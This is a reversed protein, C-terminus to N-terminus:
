VSQAIGVRTKITCSRFIDTATENGSLRKIWLVIVKCSWPSLYHFMASRIYTHTHTHTRVLNGFYIFCNRLKV